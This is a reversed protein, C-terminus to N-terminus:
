KFGHELVPNLNQFSFHVYSNFYELYQKLKQGVVIKPHSREIACM